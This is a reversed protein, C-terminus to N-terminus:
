MEIEFTYDGSCIDVVISNGNFRVNNIGIIGKVFSIKGNDSLIQSSESVRVSEFTNSYLPLYVTASANAPVTVM